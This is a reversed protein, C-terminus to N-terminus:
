ELKLQNGSLGCTFQNKEKEAPAAAMERMSENAIEM